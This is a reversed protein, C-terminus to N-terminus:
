ILWPTGLGGCHPCRPNLNNCVHCQLGAHKPTLTLSQLKQMVRDMMAREEPTPPHADAADIAAQIEDDTPATVVELFRQATEEDQAIQELTM